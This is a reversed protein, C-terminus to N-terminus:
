MLSYQMLKEEIRKVYFDMNVKSHCDNINIKM